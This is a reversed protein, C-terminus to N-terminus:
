GHPHRGRGRARERPDRRGLGAGVAAIGVLALVAALVFAMRRKMVVPRREPAAKVPLAALTRRMAETQEYDPSKYLDQLDKQTVTKM